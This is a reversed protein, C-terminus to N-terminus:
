QLKTKLDTTDPASSGPKLGAAAGSVIAWQALIYTIMILLGAARFPHMFSNIALLSDSLIFLGAGIICRLGIGALHGPFAHYAAAFMTAIVLAYVFVPVQLTKNLYPSLFFYLVGVYLALFGLLYPNWAQRGSKRRITSFFVIYALHATLFAALGAIFYQEGENMLFIDGLWSFFLAVTVWHRYAPADKVDFLYDVLLFPILLPKTIFRLTTWDGAIALIHLLAVGGFAFRWSKGRM